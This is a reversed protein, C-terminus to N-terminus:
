SSGSMSMPSRSTARGRGMSQCSRYHYCGENAFTPKELLPPEHRRVTKLFMALLGCDYAVKLVASIVFVVGWKKQDHLYGTLIPGGASALTRVFNLTGMVVTRESPLFVAAVFASRPAQDMSGFASSALLLILLWWWTTALPIFALFIANPLHTFVMARILGIRRAVSASFLNAISAVLWVAAMAYGLHHVFWRARWNVYWSMLTVPLMGSAFSNIAFLVCLKILIVRSEPSLKTSVTESLRRVTAQVQGSKTYSNRRDAETMLPASAAREAIDEETQRDYNQECRDSLFLTLCAKILGVVAYVAFIIPFAEKREWGAYTHLAYTIWGATCLGLSMGLTSAVAFWAYVDTRAEITTLQALTSEEVARFPGVEHAGPSIVGVIAALLLLYYNKTLAFVTGAFAMLLSGIMLVRRRGIRDAMITLLYSIAADGLLTMSMFLGIQTGKNGATYLFIGLVLAAGGYACMRLFRALLIIYIDRTGSALLSHLSTEHLLWEKFSM